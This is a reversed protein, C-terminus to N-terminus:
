ADLFASLSALRVERPKKDTPAGKNNLSYSAVHENAGGADDKLAKLAEAFDLLKPALVEVAPMDELKLLLYSWLTYHNSRTYYYKEIVHNVKNLDNLYEKISDVKEVLGAQKEFNEDNQAYFLDIEDQDFGLPKGADLLMLVEVIFQHDAMRSIDKKTFKVLKGWFINESETEIYEQLKGDYKAKRLEQNNLRKNNRNLRDFIGKVIDVNDVHVQEVPIMYNWFSKKDDDSLESFYKGTYSTQVGSDFSLKVEGKSFMFISTLRQKGDIVRYTAKGNDDIDKHLFIPPCPFNNMVSDLFFERDSDTWVSKRQYSPSLDLKGNSELDLFWSIDQQTPKRELQM